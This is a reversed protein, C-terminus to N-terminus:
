EALEVPPLPRGVLRTDWVEAKKSFDFDKLGFGGFSILGVRVDDPIGLARRV